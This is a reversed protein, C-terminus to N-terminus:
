ATLWEAVTRIVFAQWQQSQPDLYRPDDHVAFGHQSGEIEVLKHEAQFQNMQAGVALGPAHDDVAVRARGRVGAHEVVSSTARLPGSTRTM